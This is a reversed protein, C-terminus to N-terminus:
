SKMKYHANNMDWKLNKAHAHLFDRMLSGAELQTLGYEDILAKRNVYGLTKQLSMVLEIRKELNLTAGFRERFLFNRKM